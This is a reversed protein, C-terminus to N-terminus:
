HNYGHYNKEGAKITIPLVNQAPPLPCTAYPTFACPPNRSKNFDLIVKGDPGPKNAYLYRGSPYSDNKNTEDGFIIFLEEGEELADLRYEKNHLTFVLTGPSHQPTTQGLVNTINIKKIISPIELIAQVRYSPDVEFRDIGKFETVEKSEFDRLRVGFQNDRKIIFWQLSGYTLKPQISKGSDYIVGSKIQVSDMLINIGPQVIMQVEGERLLFIGAKSPIKGEPFVIDNSDDGGFTNAGEKLWYLGALNLWGNYSKLDEVRSNHWQEIELKYADRDLPQGGEKNQNCSWLILSSLLFFVVRMM